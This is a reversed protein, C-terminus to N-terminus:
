RGGEGEWTGLDIGEEPVDTVDNFDRAASEPSENGQEFAEVAERRLRAAEEEPTEEFEPDELHETAPGPDGTGYFLDDPGAEPMRAPDYEPPGPDGEPEPEGALEALLHAHSHLLVQLQDFLAQVDENLENLQEQLVDLDEHQIAPQPVSRFTARPRNPDYPM